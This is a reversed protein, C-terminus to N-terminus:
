LKAVEATITMGSVDIRKTIKKVRYDGDFVGLGKLTYINQVNYLINPALNLTGEVKHNQNEKLKATTKGETQYKYTAM